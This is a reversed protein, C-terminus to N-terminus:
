KPPTVGQRDGPTVMPYTMPPCCVTKGCTLAEAGSTAEHSEAVDNRGPHDEEGGDGGGYQAAGNRGGGERPRDV